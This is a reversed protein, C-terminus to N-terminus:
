LIGKDHQWRNFVNKLVNGIDNCKETHKLSYLILQNEINTSLIKQHTFEWVMCPFSLNSNCVNSLKEWFYGWTAWVKILTTPFVMVRSLKNVSSGLGELKNIITIHRNICYNYWNIKRLKEIMALFNIASFLAIWFDRVM